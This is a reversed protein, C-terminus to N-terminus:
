VLKPCVARLTSTNLEMYVYETHLLGRRKMGDLKELRSLTLGLNRLYRSRFNMQRFYIEIQRM